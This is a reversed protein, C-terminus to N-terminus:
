NTNNFNKNNNKLTLSTGYVYPKLIDSIYKVIYIKKHLNFYKQRYKGEM